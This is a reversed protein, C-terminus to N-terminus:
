TSFALALITPLDILHGGAEILGLNEVSGHVPLGLLKVLDNTLPLALHVPQGEVQIDALLLCAVGGGLEELHLRGILLGHELQLLDSPLVLGQGILNLINHVLDASFSSSNRRILFACDLARSEICTARSVSVLLLASAKLIFFFSSPSAASRPMARSCAIAPFASVWVVMLFYARCTRSAWTLTSSSDRALDTAESALTAASLFAAATALPRSSARARRSVASRWRRLASCSSASVLSVRASRFLTLWFMVAALLFSSASSLWSFASRSSIVLSALSDLSLAARAMTSAARRASSNRWSCSRAMFKSFSLFSSSAWHLSAPWLASSASTLARFPPLFAMILISVRM